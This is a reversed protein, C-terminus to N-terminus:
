WGMNQTLKDNLDREAQPIAWLYSREPFERTWLPQGRFDLVDHNLGFVPDDTGATRWRLQDFFFIGEGPLERLRELRITERLEDVSLGAVEPIGARSRVRNLANFAEATAGQSENLAEAYMLLVDAYRIIPIDTPSNWRQLNDEGPTVFKRWPFLAVSPWNTRYAPVPDGAHENYPWNVVFEVNENGIFTYGPVIVNAHLRKDANQFKNEYWPILDLGYDFENPYDNFQPMDSWDIDTGDANSYAQLTVWSAVSNTWGSANVSRGGYRMDYPAGLGPEMISKVTLVVEPNNETKFSFLDAYEDVLDYGYSAQELKAFEAAAKDYEKDYLYLKGLLAIAAGRTFRGNDSGEFSIPLINIADNLDSIILEKVQASSSRELFTEEPLVPETLIIVDNYLTKLYFYALARTFKAEAIWQQGLEPTINSNDTLNAIADNAFNILRYYDTYFRRFNGNFADTRNQEYGGGSFNAGDSGFRSFIFPYDVFTGRYSNYMGNIALEANTDNTWISSSSISDFPSRDLFEKECATTIFLIAIAYLIYIKKM